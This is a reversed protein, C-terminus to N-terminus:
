RPPPQIYFDPWGSRAATNQKGACFFFDAQV